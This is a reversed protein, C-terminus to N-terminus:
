AGVYRAYLTRAESEDTTGHIICRGTPFVVIEYPDVTVSLLYGNSVVHAVPTLRHALADLSIEAQGPPVIQVSNRGCLVTTWSAQDGELYDYLHEGCARCDARREVEVDRMELDWVDITLMSRRPACGTLLRLAEASAVSAVVGTTMALVGETDCSPVTGPAPASALVCRLCATQGPVITMTTGTSGLAGSYIWPNGTKICVDNLLFRTELNDTGDMVLDMGELLGEVNRPTVDDVRPDLAIESNVTRLAEAAAVAKPLRLEADRETFLVQRQLNSLEVFDRDILRLSGVGGRALESAIVTGLAGMGVVAVRSEALRAQGEVGIGHFLVQKAYRGSAQVSPQGAM